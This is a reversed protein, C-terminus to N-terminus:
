YDIKSDLLKIMEKMSKYWTDICSEIKKALKVDTCLYTHYYGGTDITNTKKICLGCLTLKQLSRYITSREKKLKKTLTDVTSEGTEKLKKYVNLDLVNLDFVCKIIDECCINEFSRIFKM